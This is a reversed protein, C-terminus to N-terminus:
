NVKELCYHPIYATTLGSNLGKIYVVVRTQRSVRAVRGTIGEFPGETIRVIDDSVFRCTKLDVEMVHEDCISTVRILPEMDKSSVTLPPNKGDQEAFHNYYYTIFRSEPSEKVYKDAQTDDIYAFVLNMFPVLTRRKKGGIRLDKWIMAVYAYDGNDILTDSVQCTHGYLIRFVYWKKGPSPVYEVSGGTKSSKAKPFAFPTLGNSSIDQNSANYLANM